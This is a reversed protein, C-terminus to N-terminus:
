PTPFARDLLMSFAARRRGTPDAPDLLAADALVTAHGAGVPCFALLGGGALRCRSGPRLVLRGPLNVPLALGDAAVMREGYPAAPDFTLELGWRALIPSLLAVVQPRRPDGLAFASPATLAPDALLLVQGGARAWDDLAVNEQPGLPRPQAVVLRKVAALPAHGPPGALLDLPVLPGRRQLERKAWHPPAPSALLERPGEQEAWLIPLSTFLAIPQAVAAPRAMRWGALGLVLLM